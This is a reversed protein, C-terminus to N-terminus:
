DLRVYGPNLNASPRENLIATTFAPTRLDTTVLALEPGAHLSRLVDALALSAAFAGVFAAGVSVGAIELAGCRANAETAGTSILRDVLRDYARGLTAPGQRKNFTTRPEYQSPFTHIDIGLYDPGAGLGVDVVRSFKNGLAQRPEPRDFGALAIRPEFEDPVTSDDFRREVLRTRFGLRELRGGVTRVKQQGLYHPELLLGTALNGEIVKDFDVLELLVEERKPYPLWGIAWAFAQGLHGLGLLWMSTPLFSLKPGLNASARWDLRPDWLSICVDRRGAALAGARKWSFQLAESVGFGAAAIASLVLGHDDLRSAGDEVVGGSWGSWTLYLLPQGVVARAPRGVVLTPLEPHLRDTVVGGFQTVADDFALGGIWGSTLVPNTEIRVLVGGLFARKAANVITLVAAVAQPSDPVDAGVAVQLRLAALEAKAEDPTVTPDLDVALKATRHVHDGDIMALAEV